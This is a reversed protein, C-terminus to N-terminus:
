YHCLSLLEGDEGDPEDRGAAGEGEAGVGAGVRDSEMGMDALDQNRETQTGTTAQGEEKDTRLETDTREKVM